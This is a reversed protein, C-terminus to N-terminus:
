RAWIAEGMERKVPLGDIERDGAPNREAATPNDGWGRRGGLPVFDAAVFPDKRPDTVNKVALNSRGEEV